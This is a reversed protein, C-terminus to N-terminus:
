KVIDMGNPLRAVVRRDGVKKGLGEAEAKSVLADLFRTDDDSLKGSKLRQRLDKVHDTASAM